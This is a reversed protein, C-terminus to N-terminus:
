TVRVATWKLGETQMWRQVYEEYEAADAQGLVQLFEPISPDLLKGLHLQQRCGQQQDGSRYGQGCSPQLQEPRGPPHQRQQQLLENRQPQKIEGRALLQEPQQQKQQGPCHATCAFRGQMRREVVFSYRPAIEGVLAKSFYTPCEQLVQQKGAGMCETLYQWKRQLSSTSLTLVVPDACVLQLLDPGVFGFSRLLQLRPQTRSAHDAM